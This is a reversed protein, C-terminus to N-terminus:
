SAWDTCQIKIWTINIEGHEMEEIARDPLDFAPIDDPLGHFNNGIQIDWTVADLDVWGFDECDNGIMQGALELLLGEYLGADDINFDGDNYFIVWVTQDRGIDDTYFIVGDKMSQQPGDAMYNLESARQKILSYVNDVM